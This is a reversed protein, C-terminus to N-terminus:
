ESQGIAINQFLQDLTSNDFRDLGHKLALTGIDRKRKEQLKNLAHKAKEIRDLLRKERDLFSLTESM